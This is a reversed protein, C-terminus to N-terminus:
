IQFKEKVHLRDSIFLNFKKKVLYFQFNIFRLLYKLDILPSYAKKLIFM